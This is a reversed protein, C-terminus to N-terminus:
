SPGDARAGTYGQVEDHFTIVDKESKQEMDSYKLFFPVLYFMAMATASSVIATATKIVINVRSLDAANLAHTFGCVTIFTIFMGSVLLTQASRREKSIGNLFWAIQLPILFYCAAIIADAYNEVSM